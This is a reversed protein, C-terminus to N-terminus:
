CKRDLNRCCKSIDQLELEVVVFGNEMGMTEHSIQELDQKKETM